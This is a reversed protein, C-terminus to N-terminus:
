KGIKNHRPQLRRIETAEFTEAEAITACACYGFHTVGEFFDERLHQLLRGRMGEQGTAKGVYLVDLNGNAAICGCYYVGIASSKWGGVVGQSYNYHGQYNQVM